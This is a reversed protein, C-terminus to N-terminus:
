SSKENGRRRPLDDVYNADVSSEISIKEECLKQWGRLCWNNLLEEFVNLSLLKKLM